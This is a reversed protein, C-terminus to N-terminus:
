GVRTEGRYGNQIELERFGVWKLSCAITISSEGTGRTRYPQKFFVVVGYVNFVTGPKLESLSAYTYKPAKTKPAKALFFFLFSCAWVIGASAQQCVCSADHLRCRLRWYVRRQRPQAAEGRLWRSQLPFLHLSM